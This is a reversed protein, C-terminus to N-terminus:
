DTLLFELEHNGVKVRAGPTLVARAIPEDNVFTGNTSGLDELYAQEGEFFIRAHRRSIELDDIPVECHSRGIVAEPPQISFVKGPEDGSVVRLAFSRTGAHPAEEERRAREIEELTMPMTMEPLALLNKCQPCLVNASAGLFPLEEQSLEYNCRECRLIM